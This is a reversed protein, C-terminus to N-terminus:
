DPTVGGREREGAGIVREAGGVRDSSPSSLTMTLQFVGVVGDLIGM